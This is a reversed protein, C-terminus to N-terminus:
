VVKPREQLHDKNIIQDLIDWRQKKIVYPVDDQYIKEAVTGPRPSYINVFGVHWAVQKALAVTQAFEEDTEGPFGVILDTGLVLDKVKSRLKAVVLLYDERTYGRNM